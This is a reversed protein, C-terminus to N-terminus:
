LLTPESSFRSRSWPPRPWATLTRRNPGVPWLAVFPLLRGQPGDTRAPDVQSPPSDSPLARSVAERGAALGIRQGKRDFVDLARCAWCFHAFVHTSGCWYVWLRAQCRLCHERAFEKAGIFRWECVTGGAACVKALYLTPIDRDALANVLVELLARYETRKMSSTGDTRQGTGCFEM